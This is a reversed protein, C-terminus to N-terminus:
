LGHNRNFITLLILIKVFIWSNLVLETNKLFVRFTPCTRATVGDITMWPRLEVAAAPIELAEM